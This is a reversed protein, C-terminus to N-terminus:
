SVTFPKGCASIFNHLSIERSFVVLPRKMHARNILSASIEAAPIFIKGRIFVEARNGPRFKRSSNAKSECCLPWFPMIKGQICKWKLLMRILKILILKVVASLSIITAFSVLKHPATVPSFNGM